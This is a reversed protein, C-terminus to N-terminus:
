EASGLFSGFACRNSRSDCRGNRQVTAVLEHHRATVKRCIEIHAEVRMQCLGLNLRHHTRTAIAPRQRRMDLLKPQETRAKNSCMADPEVVLVHASETCMASRNRVIRRAVHPQATTDGIRDSRRERPPLGIELDLQVTHAVRREWEYVGIKTEVRLDHIFIANM